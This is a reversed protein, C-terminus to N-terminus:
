QPVPTDAFWFSELTSANKRALVITYSTGAKLDIDPMTLLRRNGDETRFELTGKWPTLDKYGAESSYNIGDFLTEGGAAVVNIEDTGRAAHIVRVHAKTPDSSIEDRLIRTKLETGEEERLVLMTYRHGDSLMERNAEIPAYMGGPAGSVEFRTWNQDISQYPSVTKYDVAPLELLNDGRIMLRQMDPVANVVRVLAVGREDASDGSMSTSVTGDATSTTVNDETQADKNCATVMVAGMLLIPTRLSRIMFSTRTQTAPGDRLTFSGKEFGLGTPQVSLNVSRRM